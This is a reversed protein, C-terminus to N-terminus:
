LWGLQKIIKNRTRVAHNNAYKEASELTSFTNIVDCQWWFPIWWRKVQVEFGSYDDTVIRYRKM